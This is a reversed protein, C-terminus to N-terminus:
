FFGAGGVLHAMLPQWVGVYPLATERESALAFNRFSEVGGITKQM